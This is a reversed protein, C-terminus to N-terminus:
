IFYMLAVLSLGFAPFQRYCRCIGAGVITLFHLAVSRLQWLRAFLFRVIIYINFLIALDVSNDWGRVIEKQNLVTLVIWTGRPVYRICNFPLSAMALQRDVAILGGLIGM